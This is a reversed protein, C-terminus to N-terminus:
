ENILREVCEILGDFQDCKYYLEKSHDTTYYIYYWEDNSKHLKLQTNDRFIFYRKGGRDDRFTKWHYKNSLEKLSILEDDSFVITKFQLRSNDDYFESEPIEWYLKEGVEEFIKLYKM